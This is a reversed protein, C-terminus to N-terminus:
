PSIKMSSSEEPREESEKFLDCNSLKELYPCTRKKRFVCVECNTKVDKFRRRRREDKKVRQGM